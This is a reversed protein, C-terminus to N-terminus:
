HPVVSDTTSYIAAHLPGPGVRVRGAEDLQWGFDDGLMSLAAPDIKAPRSPSVLTLFFESNLGIAAQKKGSQVMIM